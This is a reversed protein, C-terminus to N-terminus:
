AMPPVDRRVLTLRDPPVRRPLYFHGEPSQVLEAADVEEVAWVDVHDGTNNLRLFWEVEREDLCLFCGTQEPERSGAIGLADAMRTWDLGHSQISGRNRRSTVHFFRM